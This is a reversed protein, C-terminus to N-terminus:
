GHRAPVQEVAKDWAHTTQWVAPHDWSISSVSGYIRSSSRLVLFRIFCSGLGGSVSGYIYISVVLDQSRSDRSFVKWIGCTGLKLGELKIQRQTHGDYEM